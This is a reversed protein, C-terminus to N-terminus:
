IHILSLDFLSLELSRSHIELDACKIRAKLYSKAYLQAAAILIEASMHCEMTGTHYCLRM